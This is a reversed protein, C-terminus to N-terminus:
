GLGGEAAAPRLLGHRRALDLARQCAPALLDRQQASVYVISDIEGAARIAGRYAGTFCKMRVMVHDPQDHAVDEVVGLERVSARDLRVGLEEHVERSLATWDDEGPERKGGPLYLRDRGRSRVTLMRDDDIHIWALVDLM